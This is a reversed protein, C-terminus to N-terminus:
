VLSVIDNSSLRLTKKFRDKQLTEDAIKEGELTNEADTTQAKVDENTLTETKKVEEIAALEADDKPIAALDNKEVDDERRSFCCFLKNFQAYFFFVFRCFSLRGFPWWLSSQKKKAQNSNSDPFLLVVAHWSGDNTSWGDIINLAM